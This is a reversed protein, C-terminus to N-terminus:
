SIQVQILAMDEKKRFNKVLLQNLCVEFLKMHILKSEGIISPSNAIM